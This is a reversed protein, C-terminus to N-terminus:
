RRRPHLSQYAPAGEFTEGKRKIDLPDRTSEYAAFFKKGM